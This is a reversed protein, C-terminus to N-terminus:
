GANDGGIACADALDDSRWPAVFTGAADFAAFAIDREDDTTACYALPAAAAAHEALRAALAAVVDPRTRALDEAETPDSPLYFLACVRPTRAGGGASRTGDDDWDLDRLLDPQEGSVGHAYSEAGALYGLHSDFGRNIM